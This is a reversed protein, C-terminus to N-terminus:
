NGGDEAEDVIEDRRSLSGNDSESGKGMLDNIGGVAATEAEKVAVV